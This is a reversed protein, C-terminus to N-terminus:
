LLLNNFCHEEDAVVQTLKIISFEYLEFMQDIVDPDAAQICPHYNDELDDDEDYLGIQHCLKRFPADFDCICGGWLADFLIEKKSSIEYNRAEDYTNFFKIKFNEEQVIIVSYM